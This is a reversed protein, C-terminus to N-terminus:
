RINVTDMKQQKHRFVLVVLPIAMYFVCFLMFALLPGIKRAAPQLMEIILLGLIYPAFMMLSGMLALQHTTMRHQRLYLLTISLFAWLLSETNVFMHWDQASFPIGLSEAWFESQFIIKHMEGAILQQWIVPSTEDMNSLWIVLHYIVPLSLIAFGFVVCQILGTSKIAMELWIGVARFTQTRIWQRAQDPNQQSRGHFEEQLDGLAFDRHQEPIVKCLLWYCLGPMEHVLNNNKM